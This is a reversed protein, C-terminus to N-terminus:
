YHVCDDCLVILVNIWGAVALNYCYFWPPITLFIQPMLSLKLHFPHVGLMNPFLFMVLVCNELCSPFFRGQM